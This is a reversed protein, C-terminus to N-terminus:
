SIWKRYESSSLASTYTFFLDGPFSELFWLTDNDQWALGRNPLMRGDLEMNVQRYAGTESEFLWLESYSMGEFTFALQTGDPSWTIAEYRGRGQPYGQAPNVMLIITLITVFGLLLKKM